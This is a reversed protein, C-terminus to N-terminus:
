NLILIEGMAIRHKAKGHGTTKVPNKIATWPFVTEEGSTKWRQTGTITDGKVVGNYFITVEKNDIQSVTQFTINEGRITVGERCVPNTAGPISECLIGQFEQKFRIKWELSKSAVNSVWTWDGGVDAPIYWLYLNRNRAKPHVLISDPEWYGMSFAHSVIRTGPKLQNILHPRLRANVTELLYLTVVTADHFDYEMIDSITFKLKESVGEMAANEIAESIRQPDIDIGVGHIGFNKAASILIRGDGCGLDYVIDNSQIQALLIMAEVVKPHTPEFPVDLKPAQDQGYAAPYSIALFISCLYISFFTLKSKM